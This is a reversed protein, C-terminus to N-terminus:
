KDDESQYYLIQDLERQYFESLVWPLITLYRARISIIPIRCVWLCELSQDYRRARLVDFGKIIKEEGINWFKEM